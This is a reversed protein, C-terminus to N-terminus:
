SKDGDKHGSSNAGSGHLRWEQKFQSSNKISEPQTHLAYSRMIFFLAWIDDSLNAIARKIVTVQIRNEEEDVYEVLHDLFVELSGDLTKFTEPLVRLAANETWPTNQGQFVVKTDKRVGLLRKTTTQYLGVSVLVGFFTGIFGGLLTGTVFDM